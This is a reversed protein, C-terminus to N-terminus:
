SGSLKMGSGRNGTLVNIGAADKLWNAYAWPRKPGMEGGKIVGVDGKLSRGLDGVGKEWQPIWSQDWFEAEPGPLPHTTLLM